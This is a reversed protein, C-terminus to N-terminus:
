RRGQKGALPKEGLPFFAKRSSDPLHPRKTVVIINVMTGISRTASTRTRALRRRQSRRFRDEKFSECSSGYIRNGPKLCWVTEVKGCNEVIREFGEGEADGV